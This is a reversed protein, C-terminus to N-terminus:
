EPHQVNSLCVKGMVKSMLWLNTVSVILFFNVTLGWRVWHCMADCWFCDTNINDSSPILINLQHIIFVSSVSILYLCPQSLCLFENTDMRHIALVNLFLHKSYKLICCTEYKSQSVSFFCHKKDYIRDSKLIFWLWLYVNWTLVRVMHHNWKRLLASQGLCVAPTLVM